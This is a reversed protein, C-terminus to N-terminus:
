IRWFPETLLNKARIRRPTPPYRTARHSGCVLQPPSSRRRRAATAAALLHLAVVTTRTLQARVPQLGQVDVVALATTILARLLLDVPPGQLALEVANSRRRAQFDHSM